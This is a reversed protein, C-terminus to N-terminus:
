PLNIDELIDLAEKIADSTNVEEAMDAPDNDEIEKELKDVIKELRM